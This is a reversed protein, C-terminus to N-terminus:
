PLGSRRTYVCYYYVYHTSSTANYNLRRRKIACAYRYHVRIAITIFVNFMVYSQLVKFSLTSVTTLKVVLFDRRKLRTEMHDHIQRLLTTLTTSISFDGIEVVTVVHKRFGPWISVLSLIALFM